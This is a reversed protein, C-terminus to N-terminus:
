LKLEEFLYKIRSTPVYPLVRARIVGKRDEMDESDMVARVVHSYGMARNYMVIECEVERENRIMGFYPKCGEEMCFSTWQNLSIRVTDEKLGYKRVRLELTYDNEIGATSFLNSISEAMFNSDYLLEYQACDGKIYYRDSSFQPLYHVPGKQVYYKGQWTPRLVDATDLMFSASAPLTANEIADTLRREREIMGCGTLLEYEIPFNVAFAEKDNKAWSVTYRKDNLNEINISFTTDNEIQKLKTFSGNRFFIGDEELQREVSKAREMPLAIELAYRELFNCVPSRLIDRQTRSFLSRGIHTVTGRRVEITISMDNYNLCRYHFGDALTDLRQVVNMTRAIKELLDTAYGKAAMSNTGATLLLVVIYLIYARYKM